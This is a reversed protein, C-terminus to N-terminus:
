NYLNVNTIYSPQSPITKRSPPLPPRTAMSSYTPVTLVSNVFSSKKNYVLINDNIIEGYYKGFKDVFIKKDYDFKALFCQTNKNYISDEYTYAIYKSNLNYFYQPLALSNTWGFFTFFVFCCIFLVIYTSIKKTM